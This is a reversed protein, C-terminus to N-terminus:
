KSLEYSYTPVGGGGSAGCGCVDFWSSKRSLCASKVRCLHACIIEVMFPRHVPFIGLNLMVIRGSV